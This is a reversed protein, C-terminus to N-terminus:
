RQANVTWDYPLFEVRYDAPVPTNRYRNVYAILSPMKALFDKSYFDLIASLTVVKDADDVRVNRPENLFRRAEGELEAELTGGNFPARPLRPCSVAMCNLAFHVREEGLPRIVENEYAYLSLPEGDIPFRRLYFFRALEIGGLSRPIGREIVNFMALANYANIHHAVLHARTPFRQPASRPGFGGLWAVYRDLDARDGALAAFDVRGSDDVHRQLVKAWGAAPDPGPDVAPAPVLVACGSISLV